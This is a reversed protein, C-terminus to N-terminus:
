MEETRKFHGSLWGPGILCSLLFRRTRGLKVQLPVGTVSDTAFVWRICATLTRKVRDPTGNDHNLKERRLAVFEAVAIILGGITYATAYGRHIRDEPNPDWTLGPGPSVMPPAVVPPPTTPKDRGILYTGCHLCAQAGNPVPAGCRLCPHDTM